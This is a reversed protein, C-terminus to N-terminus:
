IAGRTGSAGSRGPWACGARARGTERTWTLAARLNDHDGELRTLWTVQDPGTLQQEAAEALALSWDQHRQQAETAERVAELQEWGYQRVTELLRYRGRGNREELTLLSKDILRALLTVVGEDGEDGVGAGVCVAEAAELTCGGACVALRRLVAQEADTLLGYSWEM